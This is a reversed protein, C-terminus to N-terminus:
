SNSETHNLTSFITIPLLNLYEKHIIATNRMSLFIWSYCICTPTSTGHSYSSSFFFMWGVKLLIEDIFFFEQKLLGNVTLYSLVQEVSCSNTKSLESTKSPAGPFLGWSAMGGGWGRPFQTKQVGRGESNGNGETPLTHINEPVVCHIM